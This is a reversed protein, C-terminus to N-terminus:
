QANLSFSDYQIIVIYNFSKKCKKNNIRLISIIKVRNQIFLELSNVIFVNRNNRASHIWWIQSITRKKKKFSLFVLVMLGASCAFALLSRFFFRLIWIFHEILLIIYKRLPLSIFAHPQMRFARENARKRNTIYPELFNIQMCMCETPKVTIKIHDKRTCGTCTHTHAHLKSKAQHHNSSSSGSHAHYWCLQANTEFADVNCWKHM